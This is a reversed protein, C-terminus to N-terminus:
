SQNIQNLQSELEKIKAKLDNETAKAKQMYREMMKTQTQISHDARAKEKKRIEKMEEANKELEERQLKENSIDSAIMLVKRVSEQADYIPSYSESLWIQMENIKYLSTRTVLAGEKVKGILASSEGDKSIGLEGFVKGEVHEINNSKSLLSKLLPNATLIKGNLDLEAVYYSKDLADLVSKAEAEKRALEEQTALMEEMNQKMEEEQTRLEEAQEQSKRLLKQTQETSKLTSVSSAINEGLHELFEIQYDEFQNFSALELIGSVEDNVKLPVIAICNPPADGLGSTIKIYNEPVNKILQTQKELYVQGILGEGFAFSQDLFKQRDYAYFAKLELVEKEKNAIYIGGQNANIYKIIESIISFCTDEISEHQRLLVMFKNLGETIWKRQAEKKNLIKLQDRMSILAASLSDEETRNDQLGPYVADLDGREINAVFEKASAIEEQLYKQQQEAKALHARKVIYKDLGLM